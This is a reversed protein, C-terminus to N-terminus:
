PSLWERSLLGKHGVVLFKFEVVQFGEGEVVKGQILSRRRGVAGGLVFEPNPHFASGFIKVRRGGLGSSFGGLRHVANGFFVKEGSLFQSIKVITKFKH